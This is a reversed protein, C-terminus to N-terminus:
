LRTSAVDPANSHIAALRRSGADRVASGLADQMCRDSWGLPARTRTSQWHERAEAACVETAANQLRRYLTLVDDNKALDLDWAKVTRTPAAADVLEAANSSFSILSVAAAAALTSIWKLSTTM